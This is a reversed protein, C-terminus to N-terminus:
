EERLNATWDENIEEFIEPGFILKGRFPEVKSLDVGEGSYTITVHPQYEPFDWSAGADRRIAEHRWSLESSTFLLVVAGKDGLPEVLRAGGAPVTLKGDEGSWAQGAKMWDVRQRSFAVTVHLDDAPTTTEFGQSKAWAIFDAANLLKRQVYLTRPEADNAALRAQEGGLAGLAAREEGPDDGQESLRGFEDIAAELGPLSGDEVLANVLADSLAEIPMLSPSAGGTGAITRAAEAKTKFIDARDKESLGWLPSWDYYIDPDREGLASRILVEDLVALAPTLELRQRAAINDYYNRLDGDGTSNLGAPSQGLLRTVPIDAAGAAVQLFQQMLEPLQAFSIQKQEWKEGQGDGSQGTGDLLLMNFMSKAANAYTFRNTLKLQGASDAAYESLGPMYIVDTKAEPILAATHAQASTANQVADYVVQLISDGWTGTTSFREDLIPAGTFRICRSPHIKAQRGNAGAIEYHRPGGYGPSTVDLDRDIETVGHAPIVHIYELDGAGIGEVDLPQSPEQGRIGLYLLSGGQLRALQLARNVKQVVGLAAEAKEIAEIQDGEAQWDRWERTMDNPIIDVVKRALWDSRHMASLEDPTIIRLCFFQGAAKDKAGGLGSVLSRLSDVVNLRM